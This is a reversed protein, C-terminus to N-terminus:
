DSVVERHAADLQETLIRAWSRAATRAAAINDVSTKLEFWLSEPDKKRDTVRAIVDGTVSDLLEASLTMEGLSLTYSRVSTARPLDPANIYLDKIEARIRLVSDGPNDVVRYRDGKRLSAAFEDRLIRALGTRIELKEAATIPRGAVTTRQWNKHFSVEIPDLLVSDYAALTAGPRAYVTQLGKVRVRVLGDLPQLMEAVEPPEVPDKTQAWVDFGVLAAMAILPAYRM